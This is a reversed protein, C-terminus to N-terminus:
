SRAAVPGAAWGEGWDDWSEAKSSAYSSVSRASARCSATSSASSASSKSATYAVRKMPPLPATWLRGQSQATVKERYIQLAKTSYKAKIGEQCESGDGYTALFAALGGNGGVEMMKVQSANWADMGVSRVFSVHVGLSRHVGSCELCLFIGYTVSAWSANSCNCDACQKNAPIAQVTRLRRLLSAETAM